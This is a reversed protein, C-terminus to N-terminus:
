GLVNLSRESTGGAHVQGSGDVDLSHNACHLKVLVQEGGNVHEVGALHQLVAVADGTHGVGDRESAHFASGHGRHVVADEDAACDVALHHRARELDIGDLNLFGVLRLAIAAGVDGLDATAQVITTMGELHPEDAM